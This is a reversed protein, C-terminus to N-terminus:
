DNIIRAGLQDVKCICVKGFTSLVKCLEQTKGISFISNGLMCMSAMGFQNAVNIADIVKKDALGTKNTFEQSLLFLNEVSPNELIKKTCYKGYESIVNAKSPNTLIKKTDLKNGIICL